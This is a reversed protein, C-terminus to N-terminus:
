CPKYLQVFMCKSNTELRDVSENRPARLRNMARRPRGESTKQSLAVLRVPAFLLNSDTLSNALVGEEPYLVFAALFKESTIDSTPELHIAKTSFCVLILV